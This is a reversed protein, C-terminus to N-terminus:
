PRPYELVPAEVAPSSRGAGDSRPTSLERLFRLVADLTQALQAERSISATGDGLQYRYWGFQVHNGGDIRVWRTSAPLLHASAQIRRESAVRDATGLIKMVPVRASSLDLRRPHATGVLLLGRASGPHEAVFRSAPIGGHSHGGVAWPRASDSQMVALAQEIGQRESADTPACRFALRLLYVPHGAEAIGRAFPAYSEVPVPCGQYFVLGAAGSPGAPLFALAGNRDDVRVRDSSALIAPPFPAPQFGFWMTLPSVVLLVAGVRRWIKRIQQWRGL